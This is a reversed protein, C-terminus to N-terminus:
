ESKMKNIKVHRHMRKMMLHKAAIRKEIVFEMFACYKDMFVIVWSEKYKPLVPTVPWMHKMIIDREKANLETVELANGLAVKPHYFAHKGRKDIEEPIVDHWDYLYMDHLLGARALSRFDLGHRKAFKYCMYSVNVCHELTCTDGHQVFDRMLQVDEQSLLDSVLAEYEPDNLPRRLCTLKM